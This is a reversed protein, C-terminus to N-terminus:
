FHVDRQQTVPVTPECQLLSASVMRRVAEMLMHLEAAKDSRQKQHNVLLAIGCVHM